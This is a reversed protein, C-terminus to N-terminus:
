LLYAAWAALLVGVAAGAVINGAMHGILMPAAAGVIIAAWRRIMRSRDAAIKKRTFTYNESM